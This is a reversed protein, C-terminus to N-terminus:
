RKLIRVDKCLASELDFKEDSKSRNCVHLALCRFLNRNKKDKKGLLSRAEDFVFLLNLGQSSFHELEALGASVSAWDLSGLSPRSLPDRLSSAVVKDVVEAQHKRWNEPTLQKVDDQKTTNVWSMFEKVYTLVLLSMCENASTIRRTDLADAVLPTRVPQMNVSKDRLCLFVTFYKTQAIEHLMRSKGTMSSQFVVVYPSFFVSPKTWFADAYCELLKAFADDYKADDSAYVIPYQFAAWLPLFTLPQGFSV